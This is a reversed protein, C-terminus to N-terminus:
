VSCGQYSRSVVVTGGKKLKLTATVTFPRDGPLGRLTTRDGRIVKKAKGVSGGGDVTFSAKKVASVKKKGKKKGAKKTWEAVASHAGCDTTAPLTLYKSATGTAGSLAAGPADMSVDISSTGAQTGSGTVTGELRAFAVYSGPALLMRSTATTSAGYIIQAATNGSGLAAALHSAPSGLPGTRRTVLALVSGFRSTGTLTVYTTRVLDFGVLVYAGSYAQMGCLAGDFTTAISVASQTVARIHSLQGDGMTSSMTTVSSGTSTATGIFPAGGSAEQKRTATVSAQGTTGAPPFLADSTTDTLDDQDCITNHVVPDRQEVAGSYAQVASGPDLAVAQAAPATAVALCVGAAPGAVLASTIAIWRRPRIYSM